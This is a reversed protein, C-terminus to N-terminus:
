LLSWIGLETIELSEVLRWIRIGTTVTRALLRGFQKWRLPHSEQKECCVHDVKATM